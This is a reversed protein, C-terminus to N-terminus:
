LRKPPIRICLSVPNSGALSRTVEGSSANTRTWPSVINNGPGISEAAWAAGAM